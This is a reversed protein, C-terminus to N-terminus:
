LAHSMGGSRRKKFHINKKETIKIWLQRKYRQLYLIHFGTCLKHDMVEARQSFSARVCQRKGRCTIKIELLHFFGRVEEASLSMLTLWCLSILPISLTCCPPELGWLGPWVRRGCVHLCQDLWARGAKRDMCRRSSSSANM